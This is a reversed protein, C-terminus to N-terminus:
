RPRRQPRTGTRRRPPSRCPGGPLRGAPRLARAARPGPSAVSDIWSASRDSSPRDSTDYVSLADRVITGHFEPLIGFANVAERGRSPHVHYGTLLDTRAVHLWQKTGAVNVTTEDVGLVAEAGLLTKIAKEAEILSQAMRAVQSSVWGTWPSAGTLDAILRAAREVPVHQFVVLYM